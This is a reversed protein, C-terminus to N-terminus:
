RRKKVQGKADLGYRHLSDLDWPWESSNSKGSPNNVPYTIQRYKRDSGTPANENFVFWNAIQDYSTYKEYSIASLGNMELDNTSEYFPSQIANTILEPITLLPAAKPNGDEEFVSYNWNFNKGGNNDNVSKNMRVSYYDVEQNNAQLEIQNDTIEATTVWNPMTVDLNSDTGTTSYYADDKRYTLQNRYVNFMSFLPLDLYDAMDSTNDSDKDYISSGKYNELDEVSEYGDRAFFLTGPDHQPIDLKLNNEAPILENAEFTLSTEGEEPTFVIHKYNEKKGDFKPTSGGYRNTRIYIPRNADHNITLKTHLEDGDFSSTSYGFGWAMYDPSFNVFPVDNLTVEVTHAPGVYDEWNLAARSKGLQVKYTTIFLNEYSSTESPTWIDYSVLSYLVRDELIVEDTYIKNEGAIPEIVSLEKGDLGNFFLWRDFSSESEKASYGYTMLLHKIEVSFNESTENGKADTSVVLFDTAGVPIVYPNISVDFQKESSSALEEGNYMVKTEVASDDVISISIEAYTEIIDTFGTTTITPATEDEVVPDEKPDEVIPDPVIPTESKNCAFFLTILVFVIPIRLQM